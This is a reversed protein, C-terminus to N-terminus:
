EIKYLPTDCAHRMIQEGYQYYRLNIKEDTIDFQTGHFKGYYSNSIHQLHRFPVLDAHSKTKKLHNLRAHTYGHMGRGLCVRKIHFIFEVGHRKDYTYNSIIFCMHGDWIVVLGHCIDNRRYCVGNLIKRNIRKRPKYHWRQFFGNIKRSATIYETINLM